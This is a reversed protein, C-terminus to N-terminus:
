GNAPGGLKAVNEAAVKAADALPIHNSPLTNRQQEMLKAYAACFASMAARFNGAQVPPVDKPNGARPASGIADNM